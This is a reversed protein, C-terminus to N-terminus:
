TDPLTVPLEIPQPLPKVAVPKKDMIQKIIDDEVKCNADCGDGNIVNGDDCEETMNDTVGDGCTAIVEVVEITCVSSCGDGAVTNGDDCKEGEELAGNGCVPLVELECNTSCGDGSLNNGDDCQEGNRM